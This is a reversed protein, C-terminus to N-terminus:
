FSLAMPMWPLASIIRWAKTGAWDQRGAFPAALDARLQNLHPPSSVSM